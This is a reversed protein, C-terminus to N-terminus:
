RKVTFTRRAVVAASGVGGPTFGAQATLKLRKARKLMHRGTTTLRLKLLGAEPGQFKLGGAAVLIPKAQRALKAGPPVDYWQVSLVGAELATFSMSLGVHKVLAAITASKGSPVLEGTLLAMIQDSTISAILPHDPPSLVLSSTPSGTSTTTTTTGGGTSTPPTTTPPPEPEEIFPAGVVVNGQKDVAVCLTTSPCSIAELTNSGDVHTGVWLATTPTASEFVNGQHDTAACLTTTPCSVGRLKNTVDFIVHVSHWAEAGGTPNTSSVVDGQEDVAVCLTTTPCSVGNVNELNAGTTTTWPGTSPTTSTLIFNGPVHAVVCLSTSPCSADSFVSETSANAAKKWASAGGTANTSSVLDGFGDGAVCLTPGGCAIMSFGTFGGLADTKIWTGAGGAPNASYILGDTGVVMCLSVSTCTVGLTGSADPAIKATTWTPSGASPNTSTVVDGSEDVAVCLATSPCSIDRLGPHEQHDVLVPASWFLGEANAAAAQTMVVLIALLTIV